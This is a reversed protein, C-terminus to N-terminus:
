YNQQIFFSIFLQSIHGIPKPFIQIDNTEHKCKGAGAPGTVFLRVPGNQKRNKRALVELGKKRTRFQEKIDNEETDEIAEDLFTLVYTAALIHFAVEQEKDLKANKAWAVISEWSGNPKVIYRRQEKEDKEKNENKTHRDKIEEKEKNTEEPTYEPNISLFRSVFYSNLESLKKRFRITTTDTECSKKLTSTTDFCFVDGLPQIPHNSLNSLKEKKSPIFQPTLDIAEETLISDSSTSAMYTGINALHDELSDNPGNNGEKNEDSDPPPTTLNLVNECRGSHLSNYINQIRDASIIMENDIEKKNLKYRLTAQYSGKEYLDEQRRFNSFLIMFRLAHNERKQFNPTNIPSDKQLLIGKGSLEDNINTSLTRTNPLWNWPFEPIGKNKQKIRCVIIERLPHDNQFDFFKRKEKSAKNRSIRETTTFFTIPTMAEFREPRYIYDMAKHFPVQQGKENRKFSMLMNQKLIIKELGYVPIKENGHSFQFRSHHLALYHALPAALIYSNSHTYIGALMRRFGLQEPSLEGSTNEEEQKELLTVIVRSINEFAEREEKQQSKANYGTTYFVSSGSLGALVNNNFGLMTTISKNHVNMFADELKRKPYLRFIGKKSVEGCWNSWSHKEEDFQIFTKEFPKEPLNTYCENGHKFCRSTHNPLHFNSLANSAFYRKAKYINDRSVWDSDKQMEYVLVDLRKNHLSPFDYNRINTNTRQRKTSHEMSSIYNKTEKFHYRLATEVIDQATFQIKCVNCTGIIGNFFQCKEKHRMQRFIDDGIYDATFRRNQQSRVPRCPEHFFIAQGDLSNNPGFDSFLEASCANEYFKKVKEKALKFEKSKNALQLDHNMKDWDKIFLLFHGHLTKRGQEETALCWALLEGFLGKGTSCQNDEDWAFLHKIVLQVIRNYEEACLGPHDQRIQERIKFHSLIDEDNLSNIDIENKPLLHNKQAHLVIRFNRKDDPTITLFIAPFGYQVLYSFYRRRAQQAAENSHPLYECAASISKLYQNGAKTSHRSGDDQRATIIAKRLDPGTMLGYKNAMLSGDAHKMSCFMRTSQFIKEKMIVNEIILNFSPSHFSPKRHQLFKRFVQSRNRKMHEENKPISKMNEIAVDEELGSHGYPFQLPFAKAINDGKYDALREDLPRAHM